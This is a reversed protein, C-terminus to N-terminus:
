CIICKSQFGIKTCMMKVREIDIDVTLACVLCVNRKEESVPQM